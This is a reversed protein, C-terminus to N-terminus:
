FDDRERERVEASRQKSLAHSRQLFVHGDSRDVYRGAPIHALTVRRLSTQHGSKQYRERSGLFARMTEFPSVDEPSPEHGLCHQCSEVDCQWRIFSCLLYLVDALVSLCFLLVLLSQGSCRRDMSEASQAAGGGATATRRASKINMNGQM